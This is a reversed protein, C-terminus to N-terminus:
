GEQVLFKRLLCGAILACGFLFKIRLSTCAKWVWQHLSTNLNLLNFGKVILYTLKLSFFGDKFFAWILIDEQTPNATIPIGKIKQLIKNPLSFSISEVNALLCKASLMHEREALPGEIQNRLPRSPLWFDVWASMSEGNAISWKLGKNFIVEGEKYAKWIRSAPQKRAEGRLWHLTLYKCTLMQAWSMDRSSAIQWCLKALLASNRAKMEFIGLGRLIIPNTVKNWWVLHIKKKEVTSGWLFDRMLKNGDECVKIPLKHCQMAYEPISTVAAKILVLRRASLLCKSKWGALKAQVREVVFQFENRRRGKHIILFGLYKRLNHTECIGTQNVIEMKEETTINPSFFIKSKEKNIKLGTFKCFEDLVEVLAEINSEDIKAFLLLDDVFVFTPFDLDM